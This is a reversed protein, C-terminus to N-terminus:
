RSITLEDDDVIMGMGRSDNDFITAGTAGSLNLYFNKNAEIITNGVINVNVTKSTQGAAFTLPTPPIAVYDRGATATGNATAYTVTVANASAPTLTITFAVPANGSNGEVSVVDAIRLLSGEDNLITGTGRSDTDFITAGVADSLNLYFVENAEKLTDGKANVTVTKSTQTPAFTLINAPLAVFDSNVMATGNALAYKVTVPTTSAQSLSVNFAFPTNVGNGGEGKAVDSIRLVAGDDNFITAKGRSSANFISAETANSLNLFFTENTEVDTDGKIDVTVIKSKEGPAFTVVTAPKAVYDNGATATGDATAYTVTVPATSAPNLSVTFEIATTGSNGEIKNVNAINLLSGDNNLITGIGQNDVIQAGNAASLNIKFTENPEVTTDGKVNVTITKSTEGAAFNLVSPAVAIYDNGAITATDNATAYTVSVPSSPAPQL